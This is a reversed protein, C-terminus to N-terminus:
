LIIKKFLAEPVQIFHVCQTPNIVSCENCSYAFSGTYYTRAADATLQYDPRINLHRQLDDILFSLMRNPCDNKPCSSSDVYNQIDHNGLGPMVRMGGLKSDKFWTNKFENLEVETGHDTLDGNM